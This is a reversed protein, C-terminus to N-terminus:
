TIQKCLEGKQSFFFKFSFVEPSLRMDVIFSKKEYNFIICHFPTMFFSYFFNKLNADTLLTKFSSTNTNKEEKM